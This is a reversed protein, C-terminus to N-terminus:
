SIWAEAPATERWDLGRVERGTSVMALLTERDPKGPCTGM